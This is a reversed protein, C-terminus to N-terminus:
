DVCIQKILERGRSEGLVTLRYGTKPSRFKGKRRLLSPCMENLYTAFNSLPINNEAVNRRIEQALIDNKGYLYRYGTLVLMTINQTKEKDKEGITKVVTLADEELDFIERVKEKDIGIRKALKAIGGEIGPVSVIDKETARSSIAKELDEIRRKHEELRKKIESIDRELTM